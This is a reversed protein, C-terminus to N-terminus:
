GLVALIKSGEALKALPVLNGPLAIGDVMLSRVGRSVGSPNRVEIEVSRGRFRRHVTFGPWSKPICPDIRLGDDGGCGSSTSPRPTIRGPRRVPCGRAGAVPRIKELGACAHEPLPRVTRDGFRRATMRRPPLFSRFYAYAQDGNGRAIEALVILEAHPQLHRREGTAPNFLVARMIKVPTKAFPPNCLAVGYESALRKKVAALAKDGAEGDGRRLSDGWCQTNLYIQGEKYRKTGFVTGDEASRGSSGAAEWCVKAIRRTWSRGSRSRGANSKRGASNEGCGAYVQLGLRVQFTV